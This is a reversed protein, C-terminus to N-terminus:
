YYQFLYFFAFFFCLTFLFHPLFRSKSFNNESHKFFYIYLTNITTPAFFLSFFVNYISIFRTYFFYFFILRITINLTFSLFKKKWFHVFFWCCCAIKYRRRYVLIQFIYINNLKKQIIKHNSEIEIKHDIKTNLLIKKQTGGLM